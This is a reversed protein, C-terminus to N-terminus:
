TQSQLNLCLHGRSPVVAMRIPFVQVRTGRCFSCDGGRPEHHPITFLLGRQRRGGGQNLLTRISLHFSSTSESRGSSWRRRLNYVMSGPRRSVSRKPAEGREGEREGSETERENHPSRERTWEPMGDRPRCVCETKGNGEVSASGGQAGEPLLKKSEPKRYIDRTPNGGAGKQEFKTTRGAWDDEREAEGVFECIRQKLNRDRCCTLDQRVQSV